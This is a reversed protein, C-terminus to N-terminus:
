VRLTEDSMLLSISNTPTYYGGTPRGPSFQPCQKSKLNMNIPNQNISTFIALALETQPLDGPHRNDSQCCFCLTYNAVAALARRTGRPSDSRLGNMNFEHEDQQRHEEASTRRFIFCVM